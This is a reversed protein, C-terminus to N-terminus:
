CRDKCIYIHTYLYHCVVGCLHYVCLVTLHMMLKTVDFRIRQGEEFNQTAMEELIYDVADGVSLVLVCFVLVLMLGVAVGVRVSFRLLVSM